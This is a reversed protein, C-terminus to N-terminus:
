EGVNSRIDSSFTIEAKLNEVLSVMARFAREAILFNLCSMMADGFSRLWSGM